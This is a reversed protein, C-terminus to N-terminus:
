GRLTVHCLGARKSGGPYVVVQGWQLVRICLWHLGIHVVMLVTFLILRGPEHLAPNSIVAQFYVFVFAATLILFFPWEM